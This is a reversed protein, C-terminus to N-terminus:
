LDMVLGKPGDGSGDRPVITRREERREERLLRHGSELKQSADWMQRREAKWLEIDWIVAARKEPFASTSLHLSCTAQDDAKKTSTTLVHRALWPKSGSIRCTLGSLMSGKRLDQESLTMTKLENNAIGFVRWREGSMRLDPM